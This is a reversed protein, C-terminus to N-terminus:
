ASEETERQDILTRIAPRLQIDMAEWLPLLEKLMARGIPSVRGMLGLSQQYAINDIAIMLIQLQQHLRIRSVEDLNSIRSVNVESLTTVGLKAMLEADVGRLVDIATEARAQYAQASAYKRNEELSHNNQKIQRALYILTLLVALSGTVEGVAGVMEWNM